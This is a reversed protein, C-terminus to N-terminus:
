FQIENSKIHPFTSLSQERVMEDGIDVGLTPIYLLAAKGEGVPVLIRSNM